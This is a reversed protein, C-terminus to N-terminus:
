EYFEFELDFIRVTDGDEIGMERLQEFVGMKDLINQFRRSSDVSEFNTSYYLREITIGSVEYVGDVVEVRYKEPEELYDEEEPLYDDMDFLETEEVEDLAHTIVRMLEEVNQGTAASIIHYEIGHEKMYDEIRKLQEDDFILDAKNLAVIQRRLSLRESYSKLEANITEFDEIPDRGEIGSADLVHLLLKTREVHRLFDHGLGIGESAGEILGPIDALVFSKGKVAEVVGLNPFLTTFHYNAIKPKAKSVQSLLTSKGVNPFGLLGVDAIMKLELIIDREEGYFGQEAFDPTRRISSKFHTNGRGGKGGRAIVIRDKDNRLDAIVKGSKRDFIVTGVPLKIVLDQGKKGFSNKQAGNEGNEALYKNKYRFDMLTRLGSSAEVVIDGGKGGDGGNPGGEPVYKERRFSVIGDGGKGAKIYIEAKDVFM